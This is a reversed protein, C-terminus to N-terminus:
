QDRGTNVTDLYADSSKLGYTTGGSLYIDQGTAMQISSNSNIQGTFRATGAVDLKYVPTTTGIGVNGTSKIIVRGDCFRRNDFGFRRWISQFYRGVVVNNDNRIYVM